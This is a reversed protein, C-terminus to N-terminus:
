TISAEPTLTSWVSSGFQIWTSKIGLHPCEIVVSLGPAIVFAIRVNLCFNCFVLWYIESLTIHYQTISRMTSTKIVPSALHAKMNCKKFLLVFDPILKNDELWQLVLNLMSPLPHFILTPILYKIGLFFFLFVCACM